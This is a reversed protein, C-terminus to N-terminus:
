SIMKFIETTMGANLSSRNSASESAQMLL